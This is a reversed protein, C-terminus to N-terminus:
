LGVLSIELVLDYGLDCASSLRSFGVEDAAVCGRQAARIVEWVARLLLQGVVGAVFGRQFQLFERWLWLIFGNFSHSACSVQFQHLGLLHFGFGAACGQSGCSLLTAGSDGYSFSVLIKIVLRSILNLSCSPFIPAVFCVVTWWSASM